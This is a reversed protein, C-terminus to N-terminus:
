CTMWFSSTCTRATEDFGDAQQLSGIHLPVGYKYSVTERIVELRRWVFDLSAPPPKDLDRYKKMSQILTRELRTIANSLRPSPYFEALHWERFSSAGKMFRVPDKSFKQFLSEDDAVQACSTALVKVDSDFLLHNDISHQLHRLYSEADQLLSGVHILVERWRAATVAAKPLLKDWEKGAAIANVLGLAAFYEHISLHSYSFLGVAREIILGHAAELSRALRASELDDLQDSGPLRHLFQRLVAEIMMEGFAYQDLEFTRFALQALFQRKRQKSTLGYTERQISRSADWKELLADVAEAHLSLKTLPLELTKSFSICLFALFLPKRGLDRFSRSGDSDFQELFLRGKAPDNKFWKTVFSRQQEPLFDAIEVYKFHSFAHDNASTRCTLLMKTTPYKRTLETIAQTIRARVHDKASVEDLGDLLLLATGSELLATVVPEADEFGCISFEHAAFAIFDKGSDGWDKLSIFIPLEPLKGEAALLAV